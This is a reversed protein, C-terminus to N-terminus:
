LKSLEKAELISDLAPTILQNSSFVCYGQMFQGSSFNYNMVWVNPYIEGINLTTIVKLDLDTVGRLNSNFADECLITAYYARDKTQADADHTFLLATTAFFACWILFKLDGTM